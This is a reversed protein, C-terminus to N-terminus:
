MTKTPAPAPEGCCNDVSERAAAPHTKEYLAEAEKRATHEEDTETNDSIVIGNRKYITRRVLHRADRGM